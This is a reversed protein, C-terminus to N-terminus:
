RSRGRGNGAGPARFPRDGQGFRQQAGHGGLEGTSQRRQVRGAVHVAVDLGLVHAQVRFPAGDQEIETERPADLALRRLLQARGAAQGVERGFAARPSAPPGSLSTNESPTTRYSSAVPTCGKETAVPRLPSDLASGM